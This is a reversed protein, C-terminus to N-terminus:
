YNHSYLQQVAVGAATQGLEVVRGQRLQRLENLQMRHDENFRIVCM